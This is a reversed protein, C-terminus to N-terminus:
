VIGAATVEAAARDRRRRMLWKMCYKQLVRSKPNWIALAEVLDLRSRPDIDLLGRITNMIRSKNVKFYENEEFQIFKMYQRLQEAILAGIAWADYKSWYAAWWGDYDGSKYSPDEKAFKIAKARIQAASIGLVASITKMIPKVEWMQGLLVNLPQQRPNGIALMMNLDPPMQPFRPPDNNYRSPTKNHRAYQGFDIIRPTGQSDILVNEAHLDRHVIGHLALLAGAEILHQFFRYINFHRLNANYKSLTYEGGKKMRFALIDSLAQDAISSCEKLEDRTELSDRTITCADGKAVVYYLRNLPIRSILHAAAVEEEIGPRKGIKMINQPTASAPKYGSACPIPPAVICGYAGQLPVKPGAKGGSQEM